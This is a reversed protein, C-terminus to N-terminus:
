REAWIGEPGKRGNKGAGTKGTNESGITLTLLTKRSPEMLSSSGVLDERGGAMHFAPLELSSAEGCPGSGIVLPHPLIRAGESEQSM